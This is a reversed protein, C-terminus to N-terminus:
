PRILEKYAEDVRPSALIGDRVRNLIDLPLDPHSRISKAQFRSVLEARDLEFVQNCDIMTNKTFGEYEHPAVEVLTDAPLNRRRERIKDVQSSAVALLLVTDRLPDCLGLFASKPCSKKRGEETPLFVQVAAEWAAVPDVVRQTQCLRVAHVAAESYASM